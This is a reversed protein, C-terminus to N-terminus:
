YRDGGDTIWSHCNDAGALVFHFLSVKENFGGKERKESGFFIKTHLPCNNLIAKIKKLKEAKGFGEYVV